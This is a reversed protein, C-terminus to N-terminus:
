VVSKRDEAGNLILDECMDGTVVNGAMILADPWNQRVKRVFDMLYPSYGNAVDICINQVLKTKVIQSLKEFDSESVGSSVFILDNNGFDKKNATLFDIIEQAGYHKHLACFLNQKQMERAIAFTGTTYMNAAVIGTAHLSRNCWKFTYERLVDVASRSALASRKPRLLVDCYDLQIDDHIRM